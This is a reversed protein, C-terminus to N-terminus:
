EDYGVQRAFKQVENRLREPIESWDPRKSAPGVNVPGVPFGPWVPEVGALGTLRDGTLGELQVVHDVHDAALRNWTLWYDVGAALEDPRNFIHLHHRRLYIDLGRPLSGHLISGVRRFSDAVDLPHRVVLIRIVGDLKPLAPVAALSSDGAFPGWDYGGGKILQGTAFVQEHGCLIGRVRLVTACWKTGSRGSGTIVFRKM